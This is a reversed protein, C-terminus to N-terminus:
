KLIKRIRREQKESLPLYRLPIDFRAPKKVISRLHSFTDFGAKGHYAGMGSEGVGGFPLHPNAVHMITDNICGGGFQCRGFVDDIVTKSRTFLYLALPHPKSRITAIAEDLHEFALVPLIPGFIEEQMLPATADVDTVITPAIKLREPDNEGGTVITQGELLAHLRKFHHTNVIRGYADNELPDDGYFARIHHMMREIFPKEVTRDVLVYDPAVCTQGANICKGFVIRKAARDLDADAAVICPSKGGLELTVPTLHRAAKEMVIRGVRTSGTFFIHDFPEELLAQATEVGGEIVSVHSAAFAEDLMKELVRSTNESLESPKVIATNGASLAAVLPALTLYVPYNWPSMILAVGYPFPSTFSKGPVNGIDTRRREGKMWTKLHKKAYTIDKLVMGIESVYAEGSAKGLDQHLAEKLATEQALVASRLAELARIRAEYPLTKGSLFTQRQVSILRQIDEKM